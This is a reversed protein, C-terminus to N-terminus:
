GNRTEIVDDLTALRFFYGEKPQRSVEREYTYDKMNTFIRMSKTTNHIFLRDWYMINSKM